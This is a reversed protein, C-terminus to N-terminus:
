GLGSSGRLGSGSAVCCYTRMASCEATCLVLHSALVPPPTCRRCPPPRHRRWAHHEEAPLGQEVLRRNAIHGMSARGQAGRRQWAGGRGLKKRGLGEAGEGRVKDGGSCGCTGRAQPPHPPQLPPVPLSSCPALAQLLCRCRPLAPQCAGGARTPVAGRCCCACCPPCRPAAGWRRSWGRRCCRQSCRTCCGACRRPHPLPAM